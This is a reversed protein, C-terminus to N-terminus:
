EKRRRIQEYIYDYYRYEQYTWKNMHKNDKSKFYPSIEFLERLTEKNQTINEYLYVLIHFDRESEDKGSGPAKSFWLMQFESKSLYLYKVKKMLKDISSTTDVNNIASKAVEPKKMYKQLFTYLINCMDTDFYDITNDYIVNGTITVYRYSSSPQYYEIGQVSNKIYYKNTYNEIVPMRFLIRLGTGSFSFECYAIDKFMDLIDKGIESISSIDNPIKFCKDVDIACVNSAQISIGVGAYLSINGQVLDELDVFDDLKNTKALVGDVRVPLKNSTVYCYKLNGNLLKTKAIRDVCDIATM